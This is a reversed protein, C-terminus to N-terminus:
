YCLLIFNHFPSHAAVIHVHLWSSYHPAPNPQPRCARRVCLDRKAPFHSRVVKCIPSLILSIIRTLALYFDCSSKRDVNAFFAFVSAWSHVGLPHCPPTPFPTLWVSIQTTPLLVCKCVIAFPLLSKMM